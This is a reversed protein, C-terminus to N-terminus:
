TFCIIKRRERTRAHTDHSDRARASLCVSPPFALPLPFFLSLFLLPFPSLPFPPSPPSLSLPLSLSLLVYLIHPYHLVKLYKSFSPNGFSINM